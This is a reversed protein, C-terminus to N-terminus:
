EKKLDNMYNTARDIRKQYASKLVENTEQEQRLEVEKIFGDIDNRLKNKKYEDEIIGNGKLEDVCQVLRNFPQEHTGVTVYIM